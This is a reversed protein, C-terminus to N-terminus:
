PRTREAHHGMAVDLQVEVSRVYLDVPDDYKPLVYNLRTEYELLDGVGPKDLLSWEMHAMLRFTRSGAAAGSQLQEEILALM